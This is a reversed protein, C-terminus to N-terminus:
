TRAPPGVAWEHVKGRHLAAYIRDRLENAEEHTLTKELDRLVVRVLVNKQHAEIQLRRTAPEPLDRALTESLVEVSEVSSVREGLAARVRDGLEEPTDDSAVVLSLDRRVAPQRSVARYPELDLLQAQIRPDRSRLLRIDDIGKRLMLARDLGLGMALGSYDPGLGAEHLIAPLALGCEALELWEGRIEVDIQRGDTTYPHAAETCRWTAGPLVAPVAIEIMETLDAPGLAAGRRIRWLDIQHPEGTHARDITDRRYV